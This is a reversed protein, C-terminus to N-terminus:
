DGIHQDFRKEKAPKLLLYAGLGMLILAPIYDEVAFSIMSELTFLGGIFVMIIWGGPKWDKRYGVLLGAALLISHWSILWHPMYLGFNQITSLIGIAVFLVGLVFYRKSKINNLTEMIKKEEFNDYFAVGPLAIFTCPVQAATLLLMNGTFPAQLSFFLRIM